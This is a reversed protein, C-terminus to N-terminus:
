SAVSGSEDSNSGSTGDDDTLYPEEIEVENAVDFDTEDGDEEDKAGVVLGPRLRDYFEVESLLTGDDAEFITFGATAIEIGLITFIRNDEDILDVPGRLLLDDHDDREFRTAIVRGDSRAVGRIEIFDGARVDDLDFGDLDDRQDRVRTTADLDIPIGLLWIRDSAVDVDADSAVEAHIRVRNSRFKVEEAILVGSADIPGEVEVRVGDRLLAPDNPEFQASSADVRQGAVRFDSISLFDSVVGQIEYEAFRDDRGRRPAEIETAGVADNALLLGEVRVELGDRLGDPGFDELLTTEDFRIESTGIMFSGGALGSVTGFLKVETVNVFPGSRLRLHTAELEGNGNVFGSLDVVTDTALSDLDTGDFVTDARSVIARIGFIELARADPGLNELRRVPGRLGSEFIVRDARASGDAFRQGEVRVIMGVDLDSQSGPSGNIEFEASDTDWRVGNMIVSGFGAIPGESATTTVTTAAAAGGSEGGGGSSCGATAMALLTLALVAAVKCMRLNMM